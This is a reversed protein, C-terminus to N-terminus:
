KRKGATSRSLTQENKLIIGEQTYPNHLDVILGRGTPTINIVGFM